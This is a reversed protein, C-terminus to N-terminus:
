KKATKAEGGQAANLSQLFEMVQERSLTGAAVAALVRSMANQPTAAARARRIGPVYAQGAEIAQEPTNEPKDLVSRAAAQCRIVFQDEYLGFVAEEGYMEVAKALSEGADKEFTVTRGDTKNSKAVITAM